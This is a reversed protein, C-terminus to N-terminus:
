NNLQKIKEQIINIQKLCDKKTKRSVDKQQIILWFEKEKNRLKQLKDELMAIITIAEESTMSVKKSNKMINTQKQQYM